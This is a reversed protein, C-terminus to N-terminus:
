CLHRTSIALAVPRLVGQAQLSNWQAAFAEGPKANARTWTEFRERVQAMTVRVPPPTVVGPEIRVDNTRITMTAIWRRAQPSWYLVSIDWDTVDLGDQKWLDSLGQVEFKAASMKPRISLPRVRLVTCAFPRARAYLGGCATSRTGLRGLPRHTRKAPQLDM